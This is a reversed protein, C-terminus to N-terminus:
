KPAQHLQDQKTLTSNPVRAECCFKNLFDLRRATAM